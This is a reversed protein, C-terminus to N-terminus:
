DPAANSRRRPKAGAPTTWVTAPNPAAIGQAGWGFAAFHQAPTGLPSFIRAPGSDKKITDTHRNATLDDLVAGVPNISGSLGPAAIPVRGPAALAGKLDRAELAIDAASTLGGERTHKVAAEPAAAASSSAAAAPKSAPPYYYRMGADWGFLILATLLVALIINRQNDVLADREDYTRIRILAGSRLRAGGLPPLAISAEGGAM